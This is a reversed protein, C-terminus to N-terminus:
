RDLLANEQSAIEILDDFPTGSLCDLLNDCEDCRCEIRRGILDFHLGDYMCEIKEYATKEDFYKM